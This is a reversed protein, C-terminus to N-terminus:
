TIKQTDIQPFDVRLINITLNVRSKDVILLIWQKFLRSRTDDVLASDVILHKNSLIISWLHVTNPLESTPHGIKFFRSQM